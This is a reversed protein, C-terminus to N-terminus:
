RSDNITAVLGHQDLTTQLNISGAIVFRVHQLKNSPDIRLRRFWHLFEEAAERNQRLMHQVMIPFEDLMIIFDEECSDLDAFLEDAKERWNERLTNGERLKVKFDGVGVNDVNDRVFDWAHGILKGFKDSCKRLDSRQAIVSILEILFGETDSIHELDIYVVKRGDRPEDYLRLMISTKGFRRPAVLLVHGTELRNWIIEVEADRGYCDEGRAPSGVINRVM